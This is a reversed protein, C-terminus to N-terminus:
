YGVQTVGYEAQESSFGEYKLQDILQERSFPMTDLYSQAKKAAQENWDAECNDAGYTAQETTFKEYELQDILGMYSFASTDLYQKAKVLAQKSWDAGCHDVAYTADEITYGEYELQNILGEYSFATTNLYRKASNVANKQGLTLNSDSENLTNSDSANSESVPGNTPANTNNSKDNGITCSIFLVIVTLIIFAPIIGAGQKKSSTRNQHTKNIKDYLMWAKKFRYYLYMFFAGFPILIGGGTLITVIGAFLSISGAILAIIYAIKYTLKSPIKKSM